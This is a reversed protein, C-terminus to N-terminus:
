DLVGCAVEPIENGTFADCSSEEDAFNPSVNTVTHVHILCQGANQSDILVNVFSVFRSGNSNTKYYLYKKPTCTDDADRICQRGADIEAVTNDETFSGCDLATSDNYEDVPGAFDLEESAGDPVDIPSVNPSTPDGGWIGNGIITGCGPLILILLLLLLKQKTKFMPTWGLFNFRLNIFQM